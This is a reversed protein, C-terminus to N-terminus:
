RDEQARQAATVVSTAVISSLAERQSTDSGSQGGMPSTGDVSRTAASRALDTDIHYGVLAHEAAAARVPTAGAGLLAISARSCRGTTDLSITVGCGGTAFDGHRAALETFSSGTRPLLAPVQIEVLLEEPQLTTQLNDVFFEQWPIDRQHAASQVIMTAELAALAVPLEASPDAHAVSGGVTGANRIQPHAVLRVAETLLPWHEDVLVSEALVAQRTLAGIHLRGAARRLYSLESVTNIDVLADPRALRFNMLPVLSQGGALVKVEDTAQDLLHLAETLCTPREYRFAPPKM